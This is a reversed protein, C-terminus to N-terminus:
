FTANSYDRQPDFNVGDSVKATRKNGFNGARMQAHLRPFQERLKSPSLINNRWFPDENAWTFVDQLEKISHKDSERVIRIENAWKKLDPEKSKPVVTKVREFMWKSFQFDADDFRLKSLVERKKENIITEKTEGTVTVAPSTLTVAPSTLIVAPSTLIVASSGRGSATVIVATSVKDRDITLTGTQRAKRDNQIIYGLNVLARISRRVTKDSLCTEASITEVTAWCTGNEGAHDDITRLVSKLTSGAVKAGDSEVTPLHLKRLDLLQKGRISDQNAELAM